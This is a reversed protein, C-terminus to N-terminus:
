TRTQQACVHLSLKVIRVLDEVNPNQADKLDGWSSELRISRACVNMLVLIVVLLVALAIREEGMRPVHARATMFGKQAAWYAVGVASQAFSLVIQVASPESPAKHVKRRHHAVVNNKGISCRRPNLITEVTPPVSKDSVAIALRETIHKWPEPTKKEQTQTPESHSSNDLAVLAKAVHKSYDQVMLEMTKVALFSTQKWVRAIEQRQLALKRELRDLEIQEPSSEVPEEEEELTSVSLNNDEEGESSTFSDCRVPDKEEVKRANLRTRTANVRTSAEELAKSLENRLREQREKTFKLTRRIPNAINVTLLGHFEILESFRSSFEVGDFAKRLARNRKKAKQLSKAAKLEVCLIQKFLESMWSTIAVHCDYEAIFNAWSEESVDSPSNYTALTTDDQSFQEQLGQILVTLTTTMREYVVRSQRLVDHTHAQCRQGAFHLATIWQQIALREADRKRLLRDRHLRHLQLESDDQKSLTSDIPTEEKTEDNECGERLNEYALDFAKEKQLLEYLESLLHQAKEVHDATFAELPAIVEKALDEAVAAKAVSCKHVFLSFADCVRRLQPLRKLAPQVDEPVASSLAVYEQTYLEEASRLERVVDAVATLHKVQAEVHAELPALEDSVM